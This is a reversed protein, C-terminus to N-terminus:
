RYCRRLQALEINVYLRRSGKIKDEQYPLDPMLDCSTSNTDLSRIFWLWYTTRMYVTVQRYSFINKNVSIGLVKDLKM